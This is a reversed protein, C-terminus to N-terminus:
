KYSIYMNDETFMNNARLTTLFGAPGMAWLDISKPGQKGKMGQQTFLNQRAKRRRGRLTHRTDLLTQYITALVWCVSYSQAEKSSKFCKEKLYEAIKDPYFKWVEPSSYDKLLQDMREWGGHWECNDVRLASRQFVRRLDIKKVRFLVSHSLVSSVQCLQCSSCAQRLIQSFNQIRFFSIVFRFSLFLLFLM